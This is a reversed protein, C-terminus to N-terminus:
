IAKRNIAVGSCLNVEGSFANQPRTTKDVRCPHSWKLGASRTNWVSKRARQLPAMFDPVSFYRASRPGISVRVPRDISRSPSSDSGSGTTLSSYVECYSEVGARRYPHTHLVWDPNLIRALIITNSCTRSGCTPSEQTLYKTKILWFTSFLLLHM